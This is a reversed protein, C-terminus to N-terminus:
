PRGSRELAPRLELRSARALPWIRVVAKGDIQDRRVWGFLRSDSSHDRNDGMVFYMGPPVEAGDVPGPNPPWDAPATWAGVYPEELPAGDVLVRHDRILIHDGPLGVVRKIYDRSPDGPSKLIIIDGREPPHVHYDLKSAILLDNNELTPVMSAGVVHVTQVSITALVYLVAALVM